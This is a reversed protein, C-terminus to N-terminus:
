VVGEFSTGGFVTDARFKIYAEGKIFEFEFSHVALIRTDPSLAEQVFGPVAEEIYEYSSNGAIIANKIESGYQNDYILCRFRPTLIAKKIAQNVAEIGDVMGVIRGRELDLRYTRSPLEPADVVESIPIPIFVSM